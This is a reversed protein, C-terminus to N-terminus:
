HLDPGQGLAYAVIDKLKFDAGSVPKWHPDRSLMSWGDGFMLGLIVEAVIRGGVPGLQPTTITTPGGTAHEYSTQASTNVALSNIRLRRVGAHRFYQEIGIRQGRCAPLVCIDSIYGFRNSDATEAINDTQEIWGAVFGLFNGGREALLVVGGAAEAVNCGASIPTPSRSAPYGRRNPGPV